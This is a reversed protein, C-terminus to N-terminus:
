SKHDSQISICFRGRASRVLTVGHVSFSGTTRDTTMQDHYLRSFMCTRKDVTLQKSQHEKGKICHAFTVRHSIRVRGNTRVSSNRHCSPCVAWELGSSASSSTLAPDLCAERSQDIKSPRSQARGERVDVVISSIHCTPPDAGTLATSVLFSTSPV